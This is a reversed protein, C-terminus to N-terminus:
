ANIKAWESYHFGLSYLPPLPAHGTITAIDGVLKKPRKWAAMVFFEIQGSESAVGVFSNKKDEQHDFLVEMYTQASNLWMFGCTTENTHASFYPQSAYSAIINTAWHYKYYDQAFFHYPDRLSTDIANLGMERSGFGYLYQTPVSVGVIVTSNFDINRENEKHAKPRNPEVALVDYDFIVM